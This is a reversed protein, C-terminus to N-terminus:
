LRDIVNLGGAPTGRLDEDAADTRDRRLEQPEEAERKM